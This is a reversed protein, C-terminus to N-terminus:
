FFCKEILAPPTSKVRGNFIAQWAAAQLPPCRRCTPFDGESSLPIYGRLAAVQRSVRRETSTTLHQLRGTRSGLYVVRPARQCSRRPSPAYLVVRPPPPRPPKPGSPISHKSSESHRHWQNIIQSSLHTHARHLSWHNMCQHGTHRVHHEPMSQCARAHQRM